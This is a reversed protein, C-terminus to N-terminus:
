RAHTCVAEMAGAIGGATIHTAFGVPKKEGNRPMIQPLTQLPLSSSTPSPKLPTVDKSEVNM